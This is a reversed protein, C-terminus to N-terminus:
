SDNRPITPDLEAEWSLDEPKVEGCDMAKLTSELKDNLDDLIKPLVVFLLRATRRKARDGKELKPTTM